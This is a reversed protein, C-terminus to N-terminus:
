QDSGEPPAPADFVEVPPPNGIRERLSARAEQLLAATENIQQNLVSAVESIPMEFEDHMILVHRSQPNLGLVGPSAYLPVEIDVPERDPIVDSYELSADPQYWEWFQEQVASDNEDPPIPEELAVAKDDGHEHEEEAMLRLTRYLNGLLWGHLSMQDPRSKRNDWASILAEGVVEEPTFDQAQVYGQNVYYDLDHRAAEILRGMYPEVMARFASQDGGDMVDQWNENATFREQTAM